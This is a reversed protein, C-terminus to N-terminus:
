KNVGLLLLERVAEVAESVNVTFDTFNSGDKQILMRYRLGAAKATNQHCRNPRGKSYTGRTQHLEVVGANRRSFIMNALGAGHPGIIV